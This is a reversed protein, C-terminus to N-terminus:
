SAMMMDSSFSLSLVPLAVPRHFKKEVDKNMRTDARRMSMKVTM